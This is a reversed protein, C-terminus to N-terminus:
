NKSMEDGSVYKTNLVRRKLLAYVAIVGGVVFFVLYPTEIGGFQSMVGASIAGTMSGLGFITEYTGIVIGSKSKDIKKLIIELALPYFLSTGMGLLIISVVFGAVSDATFAVLMGFAMLVTGVITTYNLIRLIKSACFLM